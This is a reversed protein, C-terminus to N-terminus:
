GGRGAPEPAKQRISSDDVTPGKKPTETKQCAPVALVLLLLAAGLCLLRRIM